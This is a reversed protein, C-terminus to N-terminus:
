RVIGFGLLSFEKYEDGPRMRIEIHHEETDIDNIVMKIYPNQWSYISYSDISEILYGNVFVEIEGYEMDNSQEYIIFLSQCTLQIRFPNTGSNKSHRWGKSLVPITEAAIFSGSEQLEKSHHDLFEFNAYATGFCAEKPRHIISENSNKLRDFLQIICDAILQHGQDSPHGYDDSYDRWEIIGQEIGEKLLQYINIVPLQYHTAVMEMYSSCTYYDSNAVIVMIIAPKCEWNMLKYILSEFSIISARDMANNIAYEVFVIDPEEKRVKLEAFALGMYSDTGSYSANINNCEMGNCYTNSFYNCFVNGFTNETIGTPCCGNTVSGGLFAITVKDTKAKNLAAHLRVSNGLQTISKNLLDEYQKGLRERLNM